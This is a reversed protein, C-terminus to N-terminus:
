PSDRDAPMSQSIHQPIMEPQGFLGTGMVQFGQGEESPEVVPPHGSICQSAEAGRFQHTIVEFLGLLAKPFAKKKKIFGSCMAQHGNKKAKKSLQRFAAAIM